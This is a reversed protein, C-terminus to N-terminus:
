RTHHRSTRVYEMKIAQGPHNASCPVNTFSFIAGLRLHHLYPPLYRSVQNTIPAGYVLYWRALKTGHSKVLQILKASKIHMEYDGSDVM